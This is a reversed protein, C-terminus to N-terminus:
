TRIPLHNKTLKQHNSLPKRRQIQNKQIAVNEQHSLVLNSNEHKLNVRGSTYNSGPRVDVISSKKGFYNSAKLHSSNECFSITSPELYTVVNKM